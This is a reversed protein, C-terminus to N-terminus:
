AKLIELVKSHVTKVTLKSINGDPASLSHNTPREPPYPGFQAPTTPGFLGLVPTGLAAAIHLPGSDNAIVLRAQALLSIMEPLSTKTTLNLFREPHTLSPSEWPRPSDWVVLDSVSDNLAKTLEPFFPWEKHEGRSNPILLIPLRDTLGPDISSPEPHKLQIPSILKKELDLFPLTELLIALAHSNLGDAPLPAKKQYFMGSGERADSRGIKLPANAAFTMLGSRLLGQLDIVADFTEDRLERCVKFLGGLTRHYIHVKGNVTPCSHVIDAFRDRVVWSITSDPIQDRISQAVALGHIIDGLSSPKVILIHM